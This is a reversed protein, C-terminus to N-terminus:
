LCRTRCLPCEMVRRIWQNICQHHFKHKCILVNWLDNPQPLEMCIACADNPPVNTFELNIEEVNIVPNHDYVPFIHNNPNNHNNHNYLLHNFSNLIYCVIYLLIIVCACFVYGIFALLIGLVIIAIYSAFSLFLLMCLNPIINDNINHIIGAFISLLISLTITQILKM